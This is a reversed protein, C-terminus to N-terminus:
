AKQRLDYADDLRRLIEQDDSPRGNNDVCVAVKHVLDKLVDDLTKKAAEREEAERRAREEEALERQRDVAEHEHRKLADHAMTGPMGGVKGRKPDNMRLLTAELGDRLL